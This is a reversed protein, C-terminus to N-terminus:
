ISQVKQKFDSGARMSILESFKRIHGFQRAANKGALWNEANRLSSFSEVFSAQILFNFAKRLLGLWLLM